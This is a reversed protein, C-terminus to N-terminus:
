HSKRIWRWAAIAAMGSGFLLFTSPEPVVPGQGPSEVRISNTSLADVRITNGSADSLDIMGFDLISSGLGQGLFSVTGLTFTEPQRIDLDTDLLFSVEDLDVMGPRITTVVDTELVSFPDGLLLGYSVTDVTLISDAFTVEVQFAGLTPSTFSGLGDIVVDVDVPANPEILTTSPILSLTVGFASGISLIFIFFTTLIFTYHKMVYREANKSSM